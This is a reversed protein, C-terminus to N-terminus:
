AAPRTRIRGLRDFWRRGQRRRRGTQEASRALRRKWAAQRRNEAATLADMERWETMRDADLIEFGPLRDRATM